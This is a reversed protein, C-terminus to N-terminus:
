VTDAPNWIRNGKTYDNETVCCSWSSKSARVKVSSYWESASLSLNMRSSKEVAHHHWWISVKRPSNMPWWHIGQVFALSASSQHNRQDAGQIFPQTFLWLAPSKLCWQAWQSTMTIPLGILYSHKEAQYRSSRKSVHNLKLGAHFTIVDMIICPIFNTIQEWVEVTCRNFNPFPYTIENWMESTMHNSIWAPFGM